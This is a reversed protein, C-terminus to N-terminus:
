VICKNKRSDLSIANKHMSKKLAKIFKENQDQTGVTVRLLTPEDFNALPRVIVGQHQLLEFTQQADTKIDITVFNTESPIYFIDMEKLCGCLYKKGSENIESSHLLHEKDDLAAMAGILGLSNVSFPACAMSLVDILDARAIAYGIRFGALGYIKSFTRLVIVNRGERVYALSDPYDKKNVYEYYAEDFLIIVDYPIEKIFASVEKSTLATGIPNNPNDLYVIKTDRNIKKLISATDHRYSKLPVEIIENGLLIAAQKMMVFSPKSMIVHEGPNLFTLAIPLFLDTIGNSIKLNEPSVGLHLALKEKLDHCTPDPYLNGYKISKKIANIASPSPGLPNENSSLKIIEEEIKLERRLTDVRKGHQYPKVKFITERVLKKM